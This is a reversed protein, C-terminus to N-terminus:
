DFGDISLSRIKMLTEKLSLRLQSHSKLNQCPRLKNPCAKLIDNILIETIKKRLDEENDTAVVGPYEPSGYIRFEWPNAVAQAQGLFGTSVISVSPFGAKETSAQGCLQPHAAGEAM